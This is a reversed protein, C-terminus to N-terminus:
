LIQFLQDMLETLSDLAGSLVSPDIEREGFIYYFGLIDEHLQAHLPKIRQERFHAFALVKRANLLYLNEVKKNLGILFHPAKHVLQLAGITDIKLNLSGGEQMTVGSLGYNQLFQQVVDTIM